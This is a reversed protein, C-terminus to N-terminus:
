EKELSQGHIPKARYWPPNSDPIPGDREPLQIPIVYAPEDKVLKLDGIIVRIKTVEKDHDLVSLFISGYKKEVIIPTSIHIVAEGLPMIGRAEHIFQYLPVARGDADFVRLTYPEQDSSQRIESWTLQPRYKQADIALIVNYKGADCGALTFLSLMFLVRAAMGAASVFAGTATEHNM